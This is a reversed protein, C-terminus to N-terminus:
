YDALYKLKSRTGLEVNEILNSKIFRSETPNSKSYELYGMNAKSNEQDNPEGSPSASALDDEKSFTVRQKQKSSQQTQTSQTPLQQQPQSNDSSKKFEESDDQSVAYPHRNYESLVNNMENDNDDVNIDIEDDEDEDDEGAENTMNNVDNADADLDDLDGECRDVVDGLHTENQDEDENINVNEEDDMISGIRHTQDLKYDNIIPSSKFNEFSTPSSKPQNNTLSGSSGIGEDLSTEMENYNSHSGVITNKNYFGILDSPKSKKKENNQFHNEIVNLDDDYNTQDLKTRPYPIKKNLDDHSQQNTNSNVYQFSMTSMSSSTNDDITLTDTRKYDDDMNSKSYENVPSIYNFSSDNDAILSSITNSSQDSLLPVDSPEKSSCETKIRQAEVYKLYRETKRKFMECQEESPLYVTMQIMNAIADLAYYFKSDEFDVQSDATEEYEIFVKSVRSFHQSKLSETLNKSMYVYNYISHPKELAM